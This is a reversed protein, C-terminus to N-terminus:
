RRRPCRQTSRPLEGPRPDHPPPEAKHRHPRGGLGRTGQARCGRPVQLLPRQPTQRGLPVANPVGDPAKMTDQSADRGLLTVKTGHEDVEKPKAKDDLPVWYNWQGNPLEFQRLGYEDSVPDRWLQIMAGRGDKWSQYIVGAPNRTAAAVKAGVGYNGDHAQVHTSSSLHNIYRLMEEATMGRGNDIVCLKYIGTADFITWDADWVVSTAGAQLANQTLERLYQLDDCDRGLRELMFGINAVGMPLTKDIGDPMSRTTSNM